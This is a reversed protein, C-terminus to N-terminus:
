RAAFATVWLMTVCSTPSSDNAVICFTSRLAFGDHHEDQLLAGFHRTRCSDNQTGPRRSDPLFVAFLQGHIATRAQAPRLLPLARLKM